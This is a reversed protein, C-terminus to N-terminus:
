KKTSQTELFKVYMGQLGSRSFTGYKVTNLAVEDKREEAPASLFPWVLTRCSVLEV